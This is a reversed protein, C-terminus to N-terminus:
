QGSYPIGRGSYAPDYVLLYYRHQTTADFCRYTGYVASFVDPIPICVGERTRRIVIRFAWMYDLLVTWISLFIVYLTTIIWRGLSSSFSLAYRSGNASFAHVPSLQDVNLVTCGYFSRFVVKQWWVDFKRHKREKFWMWVRSFREHTAIVLLFAELLLLM